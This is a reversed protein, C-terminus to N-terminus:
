VTGEKKMIAVAKKRARCLTVAITEPTTEFIRALENYDLGAYARLLLLSRMKVSLQALVSWSLDRDALQEEFAPRATSSLGISDVIRTWLTRRRLHDVCRHRACIYLWAADTKGAQVAALFVEQTLDAAAERDGTLRYCFGLLRDRHEVYHTEIHALTAAMQWPYRTLRFNRLM